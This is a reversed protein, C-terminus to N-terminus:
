NLYKDVLSNDDETMEFKNGKGIMRDVVDMKKQLVDSPKYVGNILGNFYRGSPVTSSYMLARSKADAMKYDTVAGNADQYSPFAAIAGKLEQVNYAAGTETRLKAVASDELARFFVQALPDQIKNKMYAMSISEEQKSDNIIGLFQSKWNMVKKRSESDSLIKDMVMFGETARQSYNHNKKGSEGWDSTDFFPSGDSNMGSAEPIVSEYNSDETIRSDTAYRNRSENIGVRRTKGFQDSPVWEGTKPDKVEYGEATDRATMDVETGNPKTVIVNFAKNLKDDKTQSSAKARLKKARALQRKGEASYHKISPDNQDAIATTEAQAELKDAEANYVQANQIFDKADKGTAAETAEDAEFQKWAFQVASDGSYGMVRVAAYRALARIMDKSDVGLLDGLGSFLGKISNIAEDATVLGSDVAKGLDDVRQKTDNGVATKEPDGVTAADLDASAETATAEKDAEFQEIGALAKADAEEQSTTYPGLEPDQNPTLLPDTVEPATARPDQPSLGNQDPTPVALTKGVTGNDVNSQYTEKSLNFAIKEDELRKAYDAELQIIEEETPTSLNPATNAYADMGTLAVEDGPAVGDYMGPAPQAIQQTSTTTSSTPLPPLEYTVTGDANLTESLVSPDNQLTLDDESGEVVTHTQNPGTNQQVIPGNVPTNNGYNAQTAGGPYSTGISDLMLEDDFSMGDANNLKNAYNGAASNEDYGAFNADRIPKGMSNTEQYDFEYFTPYEGIGKGNAEYEDYYDGWDQNLAANDNEDKASWSGSGTVVTEPNPRPDRYGNKVYMEIEAPSTAVVTMGGANTMPVRIKETGGLDGTFDTIAKPLEPDPVPLNTPNINGLTGSTPMVEKGEVKGRQNELNINIGDKTTLQVKDLDNSDNSVLSALGDISGRDALAGQTSTALTNGGFDRNQANLMRQQESASDSVSMNMLARGPAGFSSQQETLMGVQESNGSFGGESMPGLLSNRMLEENNIRGQMERLRKAAAIKRQRGNAM